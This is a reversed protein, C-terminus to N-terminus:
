NGLDKFRNQLKEIERDIEEDTDDNKGDTVNSFDKKLASGVLGTLERVHNKITDELHRNREDIRNLSVTTQYALFIGVGALVMSIILTMWENTTM